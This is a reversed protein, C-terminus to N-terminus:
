GCAKRRGRIKTCAGPGGDPCNIRGKLKKPCSKKRDCSMASEVIDRKIPCSRCGGMSRASKTLRYQCLDADLFLVWAAGADFDGDDDGDAGVIVDAVGNGDLDGLPAVSSGFYDSESLEGKFGGATASIKQHAKVTGDGLLFLVWVAGRNWRGGDDDLRSGVFIDAVGDTNLDGPSAVSSGFWDNDQLGGTFGGETDSIKQHAKVTGDHNLMLIWVAGRDAGPPDGGDDDRLAGVVLENRNDHDLDPLCAVSYGFDDYADILGNFGGETASIKQHSKVRGDRNLFLVWVAGRTGGGDADNVAGVALDGIRDGDLDGLFAVSSGFLDHDHLTGLFGGRTNSVKQHAKVTGDRRLFLIWVAGRSDGGDDDSIAGVALDTVQDGDLDGLSAVAGGFQDGDDLEGTFGGMTDSIKQETKITGDRLLFLIWVAGRACDQCGDDDGWAGVAIDVIGDGDLDGLSAVSTGFSDGNDLIGAFNGETDSLKQHALVWGPQGAASRVLSFNVVSILVLPLIRRTM